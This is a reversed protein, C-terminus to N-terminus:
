LTLVRKFVFRWVQLLDPSKWELDPSRSIKMIVDFIPLDGALDPSKSASIDHEKLVKAYSCLIIPLKKHQHELPHFHILKFLYAFTPKLPALGLAHYRPARHSLPLIGNRVLLRSLRPEFGGM